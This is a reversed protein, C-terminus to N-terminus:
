KVNSFSGDDGDDVQRCEIRHVPGVVSLSSREQDIVWEHCFCRVQIAFKKLVSAAWAATYVAQRAKQAKLFKVLLNAAGERRLRITKRWFRQINSASQFQLKRM